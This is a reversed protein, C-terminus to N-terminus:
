TYGYTALPAGTLHASSLCATGLEPVAGLPSRQKKITRAAELADLQASPDLSDFLQLLEEEQENM